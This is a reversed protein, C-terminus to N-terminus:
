RSKEAVIVRRAFGFLKRQPLFFEAKRFGSAVVRELIDNGYNRFCFVCPGRWRDRHYEVPLINIRKGDRFATRETTVDSSSLPVTFVFFGGPRLVRCIESFGKLDDAVHEFVETCTCLDFSADRFTLQQVDECPIGSISVSGPSVDDFYESLTLSRSHSKLYAVLPGSSSLEYTDKQALNAVCAQLTEVLSQTIASARCRPCRVGIENGSLRLNVPFNCLSCRETAISLQRWKVIQMAQKLTHFMAQIARQFNNSAESAQMCDLTEITNSTKQPLAPDNKDHTIRPTQRGPGRSACSPRTMPAPACFLCPRAVSM